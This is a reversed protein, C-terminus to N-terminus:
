GTLRLLSIGVMKARVSASIKHNGLFCKPWYKTEKQKLDSIWVKSYAAMVRETETRRFRQSDRKREERQEDKKEEELRKSEAAGVVELSKQEPIIVSKYQKLSPKKEVLEKKNPVAKKIM